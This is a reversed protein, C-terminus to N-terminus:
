CVVDLRTRRPLRREARGAYGRRTEGKVNRLELIEAFEDAWEPLTTDRLERYGVHGKDIEM